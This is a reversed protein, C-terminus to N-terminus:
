SILTKKKKSACKVVVIVTIGGAVLVVVAAPPIVAAYILNRNCAIDWEPCITGDDVAATVPSSFNTEGISSNCIIMFQYVGPEGVVILTQTENYPLSVRQSSYLFHTPHICLPLLFSAVEAM